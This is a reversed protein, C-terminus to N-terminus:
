KETRTQAAVDATVEGTMTKRRVEYVRVPQERGRVTVTGRDVFEVVDWLVQEGETKVEGSVVLDAKLEKTMTQLRSALNVTDGLATYQVRRPTGINGVVAEGIHIGIGIRFTPLGEQAWRNNLRELRELMELASTVALAGRNANNQLFPGYLAMVGDGIFKDLVGHHNQIAETMETLYQRMQRVVLEPPNQESYSTFNRVDSFLIAVRQRAGEQHAIQPDLVIQEVVEPAVYLSFMQRIKRKQAEEQAFRQLGMLLTAGTFGILVPAWLPVFRGIWFAGEMVSGIGLLATLAGLNAQRPPFATYLWLPVGIALAILLWQVGTPLPRVPPLHLLNVLIEANWEVGRLGEDLPNPRIDTTGSATEGVLVIKGAFKEPPMTLADAFSVTPVPAGLRKEFTGGKRAIPQLRLVGDELPVIRDGLRLAYPANQLADSLEVDKAVCAMALSFHPLLTGDNTVMVAKPTRYVGDADANADAYGVEKAAHLLIPIPPQVNYPYVISEKPFSSLSTRPFRSLLAHIQKKTQGSFPHAEKWRHFPIVVRGHARMAKALAADGKKDHDDPELFLIDLGVAKAFKLREILQAYRRRSWYRLRKFRNLTKDDVAVVLIDEPFAVPRWAAHWRWHIDTLWRNLDDAFGFRESGLGQAFALLALAGMLGKQWALMSM